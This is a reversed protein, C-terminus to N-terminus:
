RAGTMERRIGGDVTRINRWDNSRALKLVVDDFEPSLPRVGWIQAIVLISAPDLEIIKRMERSDTFGNTGDNRAASNADLQATNDGDFRLTATGDADNFEVSEHVQGWADWGLSVRDTM